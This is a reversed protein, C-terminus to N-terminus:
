VAQKNKDHAQAHGQEVHAGALPLVRPPPHVVAEAAAQAAPAATEVRAVFTSVAADSDFARHTYGYGM